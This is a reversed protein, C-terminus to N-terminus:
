FKCSQLVELLRRSLDSEPAPFKEERVVALGPLWEHKVRRSLKVQIGCGPPCVSNKVLPSVSAIYPPRAPGPLVSQRMAAGVRQIMYGSKLPSSIRRVNGCSCSIM